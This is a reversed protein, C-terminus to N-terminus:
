AETLRYAIVKRSGEKVAIKEAEGARVMKSMRSSIKGPTVEEDTAGQVMEAIKKIPMYDDYGMLAGKILVMLVDEKTAREKAREASKEAKRKLQDIRSKVFAILEDQDEVDVMALAEAIRAYMEMQTMKKEM